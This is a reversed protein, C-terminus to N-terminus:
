KNKSEVIEKTGSKIMEAFEDEEKKPNQKGQYPPINENGEENAKEQKYDKFYEELDEDKGINLRRAEASSFGYKAAVAIVQKTREAQFKEEEMKSFKDTLMQNSAILAKAWEPVDEKPPTPPDVPEKTPQEELPKGDKIKYKKEYNIVASKQAENARADGYSNIVDSISIGEVISDVKAEDTVGEAKKSAIRTLIAVDVGEFKTQLAALILQQINM